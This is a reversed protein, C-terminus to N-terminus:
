MEVEYKVIRNKRWVVFIKGPPKLNQSIIILEKHRDLNYDTM